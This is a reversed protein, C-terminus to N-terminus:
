DGKLLGNDKLAQYLCNSLASIQTHELKLENDTDISEIIEHLLVEEQRQVPIDSEIWIQHTSSCQNGFVSVGDNKYRKRYIVKYNFGGIKLSKPIKM